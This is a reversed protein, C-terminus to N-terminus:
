ALFAPKPYGSVQGISGEWDRTPGPKEHGICHLFSLHTGHLNDERRGSHKGNSGAEPADRREESRM